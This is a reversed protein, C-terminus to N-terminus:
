LQYGYARVIASTNGAGYSPVNVVIATNPASAPIAVPARWNINAIPTTVGAPVAEQFSLTTPLGTVTINITTGATAGLGDIDFGLLYTTKGAVGPITATIAAAAGTTQVVIPTAGPPINAGGGNNAGAKTGYSAVQVEAIGQGLSGTIDAM